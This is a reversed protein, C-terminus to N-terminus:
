FADEVYVLREDELTVSAADFRLTRATLGRAMAWELGADRIRRQKRGDITALPDIFSSRRRTRVECFALVRGREAIIDIEARGVRANRAVIQYGSGRLHACVREEGITGVQNRARQREDAVTMGAYM